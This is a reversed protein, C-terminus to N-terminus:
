HSVELCHGPLEGGFLARGDERIQALVAARVGHRHHPQALHQSLSLAHPHGRRTWGDVMGPDQPGSHRAGLWRLYLMMQGYDGPALPRTKLELAVYCRM